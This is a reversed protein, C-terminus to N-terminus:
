FKFSINFFFADGELRNRSDFEHYWKLQFDVDTTNGFKALYDIGPGVGYVESKFDGLTAGDGSDGTVQVWAYGLAGIKLHKSLYQGLAVDVHFVDGSDYDTTPNEYNVTYGFAGSLETGTKTNLYTLNIMPEVAWYNKSLNVAQDEDYEGTPAYVNLLTSVHLDGTHWGLIAPTLITDSLGTADASADLGLPAVNVDVDVYGVGQAIGMGLNAGAFKWPTVWTLGVVDIAVDTEVGAALKGGASVRSAEANYYYAYNGLYLGSEPPIYGAMFGFFGPLYEGSGGEAALSTKPGAMGLWLVFLLSRFLTPCIVKKMHQLLRM